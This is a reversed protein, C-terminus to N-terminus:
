QLFTDKNFADKSNIGINKNGLSQSSLADMNHKNHMNAKRSHHCGLQQLCGQQQQHGTDRVTVQRMATPPM